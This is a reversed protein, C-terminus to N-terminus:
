SLWAQVEQAIVDGSPLGYLRSWQKAGARGVAIVPPHNDRLPAYSDFGRRVEDVIDTPAKLFYWDNGARHAKAFKRVAQETDGFWDISISVLAVKAGLATGLQAQARTLAMSQVPCVTSCGTFFFNVVVVRDGIVDRVLRLKRGRRVDLMEADVLQVPAKLAAQAAFGRPVWGGLTALAAVSLFDRRSFTSV